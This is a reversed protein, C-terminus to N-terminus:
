LLLTCQQGYVSAYENHDVVSSHTVTSVADAPFAGPLAFDRAERERRMASQRRLKRVRAAKQVNGKWELSKQLEKYTQKDGRDYADVMRCRLRVKSSPKPLPMKGDEEAIEAELEDCARQVDRAYALPVLPNYVPVSQADVCHPPEQINDQELPMIGHEEQLQLQLLEKGM